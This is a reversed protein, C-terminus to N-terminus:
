AKMPRNAASSRRERRRVHRIGRPPPVVMRRHAARQEVLERREEDVDAYLRWLSTFDFSISTATESSPAVLESRGRQLRFTVGRPPNLVTIRFAVEMM